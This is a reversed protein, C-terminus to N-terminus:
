GRDILRGGLERLACPDLTEELLPFLEREEMRVHARLLRGTEHLFEVEARGPADRLRRMAARLQEHEARVRSALAVGSDLGLLTPLLLEEELAFHRLEHEALFGVFRDATTAADQEGAGILQSAIVLAAHHDRSLPSLATSRKM